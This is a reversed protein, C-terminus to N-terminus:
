TFINGLIHSTIAAMLNRAKASYVRCNLEPGLPDLAMGHLHSPTSTYRWVKM